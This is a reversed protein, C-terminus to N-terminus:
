RSYEISFYMEQFRELFAVCVESLFGHRGLIAYSVKLDPVFLAEVELQLELAPVIIGVRHLHGFAHGGIGGVARGEGEYLPIELADAIEGEILIGKAGTDVCAVTSFVHDGALLDIALLPPGIADATPHYPVGVDFSFNQPPNLRYPNDSRSLPPM